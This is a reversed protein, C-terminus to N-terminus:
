FLGSTMFLFTDLYARAYDLDGTLQSMQTQFIDTSVSLGMSLRKYKYKGWHLVITCLIQADPNLKTHYYGKELDLATAHQFGKLHQM